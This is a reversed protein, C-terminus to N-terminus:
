QSIVWRSTPVNSPKAPAEPDIVFIKGTRVRIGSPCLPGAGYRQAAGLEVVVLNARRSDPTLIEPDAPKARNANGRTTSRAQSSVVPRVRNASSYSPRPIFSEPMLEGLEPALPQAPRVPTPGTGWRV